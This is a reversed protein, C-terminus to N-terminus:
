VPITFGLQCHSQWHIEWKVEPGPNPKQSTKIVLEIEKSASLSNLNEINDHNRRSQNYTELLTDMEEIIDLINAYQNNMTTEQSGKYKQFILHLAEEKM